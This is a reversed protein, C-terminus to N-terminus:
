ALPKWNADWRPLKCKQLLSQNCPEIWPVLKEKSKEFIEPPNANRSCNHNLNPEGAQM